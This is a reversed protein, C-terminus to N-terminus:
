AIARRRKDEPVFAIGFAAHLRVGQCTIATGLEQKDVIAMILKITATLALWVQLALVALSVGLVGHTGDDTYM